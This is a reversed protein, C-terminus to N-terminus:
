LVRGLKAAANAAQGFPAELKGQRELEVPLLRTTKRTTALAIFVTASLNM